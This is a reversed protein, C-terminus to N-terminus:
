IIQNNYNLIPDHNIISEELLSLFSKWRKTYKGNNSVTSRSNFIRILRNFNGNEVMQYLFSRFIEQKIESYRSSSLLEQQDREEHGSFERCFEIYSENFIGIMFNRELGTAIVFRSNVYSSLSAVSKSIGKQKIKLKKCARRFRVQFSQSRDM